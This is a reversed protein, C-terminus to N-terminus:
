IELVDKVIDIFNSPDESGSQARWIRYIGRIAERLGDERDDRMNRDTNQASVEKEDQLQLADSEVAKLDVDKYFRYDDDQSQQGHGLQELTTQQREEGNPAKWSQAAYPDHQSHSLSTSLYREHEQHLRIHLHALLPDFTTEPGRADLPKESQLLSRRDLKPSPLTSDGSGSKACSFAEVKMLKVDLTACM